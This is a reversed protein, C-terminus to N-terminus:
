KNSVWKLYKQNYYKENTKKNVLSDQSYVFHINSIEPINHEYIDASDVILENETLKYKITTLSALGGYRKWYELISDNKLNIGKVDSEAIKERIENKDYIDSDISPQFRYEKVEFSTKCSTVVVAVLILLIFSINSKM